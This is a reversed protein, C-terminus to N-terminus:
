FGLFLSEPLLFLLLLLLLGLGAIVGGSVELGKKVSAIEECEKACAKINRILKNRALLCRTFANETANFLEVSSPVRRLPHSINM